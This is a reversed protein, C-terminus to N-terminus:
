ARYRQRIEQSSHVLFPVFSTRKWVRGTPGHAPNTKKTKTKNIIAAVGSESYVLMSFFRIHAGGRLWEGQSMLILRAALTLTM